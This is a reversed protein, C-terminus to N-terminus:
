LSSTHPLQESNLEWSESKLLHKEPLLITREDTKLINMNSSLKLGGWNGLVKREISIQSKKKKLRQWKRNSFLGTEVCKEDEPVTQAGATQTTQFQDGTPLRPSSAPEQRLRSRSWPEAGTWVKVLLDKKYGGRRNGDRLDQKLDLQKPKWQFSLSPTVSDCPVSSLLLQTESTKIFLM